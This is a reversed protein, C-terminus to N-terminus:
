NKYCLAFAYSKDTTFTITDARQDQDTLFYPVGHDDTGIMEFSRGEKQLSAPISLTITFPSALSHLEQGGIYMNYTYGIQYGNLGASVADIFQDGQVESEMTITGPIASTKISSFSVPESTKKSFLKQEEQASPQWSTSGSLTSGSINAASQSPASPNNSSVTGSNDAPAKILSAYAPLASQYASLSGAPVHIASISTGFFINNGLTPPTSSEFTIEQLGSNAFAGERISTVSAPITISHLSQCLCFEQVSITNNLITVSNLNTCGYFAGWDVNSGVSKPITISTLASCDHFESDSINNNLITVSNLNTCAYFAMEGVNSGVSIPITISTLNTCNTFAMRSIFSVNSFDVSKVESCASADAYGWNYMGLDDSFTLKGNEDLVWDTGSAIDAARSYSPILLCLLLISLIAPM